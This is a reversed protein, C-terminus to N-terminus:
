ACRRRGSRTSSSARPTRARPGAGVDEDNGLGAQRNDTCGRRRPTARDRAQLGIALVSEFGDGQRLDHVDNGALTTRVSRRGSARVDIGDGCDADHVRNGRIRVRARGRTADVMIGAWGNHLGERSRSAWAPLLRPCRQVAPHPLGAHVVHQPRLRRQRQDTARHVNVGYIGGRAAGAIELNRVTVGRALRVADGDFRAPNTNTLRPARDRRAPSGLRPGAGILRQRRKLRIGGDLPAVSRPTALVVIRDGPRSRREATALRAFPARRSGRGDEFLGARVYWTRASPKAKGAAVGPAVSQAVCAALVLACATCSRRM